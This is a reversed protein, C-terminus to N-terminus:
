ESAKEEVVVNEVVVDEYVPPPGEKELFSMTDDNEGTALEDQQVKSYAGRQGRRFFMRWLFVILHGVIMGVLSAVVGAVIGIIIPIIVHLIVSRMIQVAGHHKHHSHHKHAPRGTPSPREMTAPHSKRGGCGKLKPLKSAIIAKWRCLTTVCEKEADSPGSSLGAQAVLDVTGILLKGAPSQLLNIDVRDITNIFQDAVEVIQFQIDLMQLQDQEPFPAAKRISFSYGLKPSSGEVWANKMAPNRILQPATLPEVFSATGVPHLLHGNLLLQDAENEIRNISFNLRLKSEAELSMMRGTVDPVLAPCGPCDLIILLGDTDAADEFPLISIIDNDTSPITPPILFSQGVAVFSAVAGLQTFLM